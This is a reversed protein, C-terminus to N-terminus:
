RCLIQCVSDQFSRGQSTQRVGQNIICFALTHGEASTAYGSLSSIGEVTGTKAQVRAYAPTGHMRKELTGDVGAVPLSPLLAQRIRSTKWAYRLLAVMMQPTVYNYLSLGSGDAIVFDNLSVSTEKGIMKNIQSSAQKRGAWPQGNMSALQQFVSEAYFNNSKKMMRQLMQAITHSSQALRRANAPLRGKEVNASALRIGLQNLDNLWESDFHDRGDVSLATLPDTKDDWCWGWGLRTSDRFSLDVYLRGSISDIGQAALERALRYVDGQALMPDMRGVVYVDGRLVSDGGIEGTICLDTAVNHDAGLYYLAAIATVLKQCSAPRMRHRGNHSFVTEGTTLDEVVLGIESTESLSGRCLQELQVAVAQAWTLTDPLGEEPLEEFDEFVSDAFESVLTDPRAVMEPKVDPVSSTRRKRRRNDALSSLAVCLALFILLYRKVPDFNIIKTRILM